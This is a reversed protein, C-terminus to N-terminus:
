PMELTAAGLPVGDVTSLWGAWLGAEDPGALPDWTPAHAGALVRLRSDAEMRVFPTPDRTLAVLAEVGRRDGARALAVAEELKLSADTERALTTALAEAQAPDGAAARVAAERAVPDADALGTPLPDGAAAAEAHGLEHAEDHDHGTAPIQALGWLLAGLAGGGVGVRGLARARDAAHAVAWGLLVVVLVLGFFTVIVPGTPHEYSVAVGAVSVVLGTAWGVLLRPVVGTVLLRAVVAPIVLYSFVLIVGSVSVIATLAMGFSAYFVMDWLAVRRGEARAQEPRYSIQLFRQRAFVHFLGVAGCVGALLGVDAPQVWVINGVLLHELKEGGHADAAFHIMLIGAAASVAYAIGIIAEQPVREEYLRAASFAAAGIFTFTLALAFAVSGDPEHGLYVAWTTGLAAVQALALDVFIVGRELVHLGFWGLTLVIVVCALVPLLMWSM